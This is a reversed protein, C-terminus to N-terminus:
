NNILSRIYNSVSMKAKLADRKLKTLENASLRFIYNKDKVEAKMITTNTEPHLNVFHIYV